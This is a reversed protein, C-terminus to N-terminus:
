RTPVSARSPQPMPGGSEKPRVAEARQGREAVVVRKELLEVQEIDFAEVSPLRGHEGLERPQLGVRQCGNLWTTISTVVGTFGTIKDKAKDGLEIIEPM